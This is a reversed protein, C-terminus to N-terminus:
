RHGGLGRGDVALVGVVVVGVRERKQGFAFPRDIERGRFLRGKRSLRFQDIPALPWVDEDGGVAHERAAADQVVETGQDAVRLRDDQEHAILAFRRHAGM